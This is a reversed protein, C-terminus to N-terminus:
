FLNIQKYLSSKNLKHVTRCILHEEIKHPAISQDYYKLIFRHIGAADIQQESSSFKQKVINSESIDTLKLIALYVDQIVQDSQRKIQNLYFQEEKRLKAIEGILDRLNAEVAGNTKDIKRIVKTSNKHHQEM